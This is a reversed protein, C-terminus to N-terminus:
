CKGGDCWWEWINVTEGEFTSPHYNHTGKRVISPNLTSYLVIFPFVTLYIHHIQNFIQQRM